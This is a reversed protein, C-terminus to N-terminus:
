DAPRGFSLRQTTEPASEPEVRGAPGAGNEDEDIDPGLLGQGEGDALELQEIRGFRRTIKRASKNVEEVDRNAQDIHQALNDMRKQFRTFDQSLKGLHEQIIHVQQRTAADRLVARATTLIAWLTTPSAMWVRSRQAYEVLDHHSAHIDAFVAEAPIFMVAGDSTEGAIVYKGAIDDIHTKVDKIFNKEAAKRDEGPLEPDTKRRYNELPFKSDVPVNGTPEPLFLMCDVRNGNSLSHQMAFGSPPLVNQVLAHLQVEGFAGRAGRDALVEQLSVVSTSLEMIRKQANDIVALREVVDTFTATTKEFGESLRKDVQGSIELLKKDTAETLSQMRKGIEEAHSKLTGTVQEQVRDVGSQLSAHLTKLAESNRQELGERLQGFRELLSQQLEHITQQQKEKTDALDRLLAQQGQTQGERLDQNLGRVIEETARSREGLQASLSDGRKGQEDLRTELRELANKLGRQRGQGVLIVALVLVLLGIVLVTPDAIM